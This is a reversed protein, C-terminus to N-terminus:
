WFSPAAAPILGCGCCCCCGCCGCCGCSRFWHVRPRFFQAVCETSGHYNVSCWAFGADLWAQAAPNYSQMQISTPGGHTHLITPWPGDSEEAPLALWGQVMDGNESPFTISEFSRPDSSSSDAAAACSSSGPPPTISGAPLLAEKPAGTTADLTIVMAPTAENAFGVCLDGTLKDFFGSSFLGKPQEPMSSVSGSAVDLMHLSVQAHHNQRVLLKTGAEDFCVPTLQGEIASLSPLETRTGSLPEWMFPRDFGSASSTVVMQLPEHEPVFSYSSMSTKPGDWLTAIPASGAPLTLDYINLAADMAVDPLTHENSSQALYRGCPSLVLMGTQVLQDIRHYEVPPADIGGDKVYIVQGGDVAASLVLKSGDKAEVLGSAAYSKLQPTLDVTDGPGASADWRIAVYHGIELGPKDDQHYFIWEGDKSLTGGGKGAPSNTKVTMGGTDRDWAYIQGVGDKNTSIVGRSPENKAVGSM